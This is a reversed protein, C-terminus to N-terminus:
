GWPGISPVPASPILIGVELGEINNLHIQFKGRVEQPTHLDQAAHRQRQARGPAARPLHLTAPTRQPGAGEPGAGVVGAESEASASSSVLLNTILRGAFAHTCAM